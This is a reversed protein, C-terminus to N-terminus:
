ISQKRYCITKDKFDKSSGSLVQDRNKLQIMTELKPSDLTLNSTKSTTLNFFFTLSNLNNSFLGYHNNSLLNAGFIDM